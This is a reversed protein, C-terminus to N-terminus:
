GRGKKKSIVEHIFHVHFECCVKAIDFSFDAPFNTCDWTFCTFTTNLIKYTLAFEAPVSCAEKQFM